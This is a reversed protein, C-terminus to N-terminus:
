YTRINGSFSVSTGDLFQASISIMSNNSLPIPKPKANPAAGAKIFVNGTASPDRTYTATSVKYNEVSAPPTPKSILVHMKRNKSPVYRPSIAEVELTMGAKAMPNVTYKPSTISIRGRKRGAGEYRVNPNGPVKNGDVNFICNALDVRKPLVKQNMILYIILAILLAILIPILIRLWRPLTRVEVKETAEDSVERGIENKGTASFTIKYKADKPTSNPDIQVRFASEDPLPEVLLNLGDAEAKFTVDKMQEATLPAGGITVDVIIPKGDKLQSIVYYNQEVDPSLELKGSSDTLEFTSQAEARDTNLGHENTYVASVSLTYVGPDTQLASGNYTTHVYYGDSDRKLECRANGGTLAAEADIMDLQAGTLKAGEYFFDVRHIAGDTFKVLDYSSASASIRVDLATAPPPSVKFGGFPWGFDLGNRHIKYGGLYTVDFDCDFTDEPALEIEFQGAKDSTVTETKGNITYSLTYRTDGLLSSTTQKGTRDVIYYDITYKGPPIEGNPDVENGDADKFVAKLDVDPEYYAIVSTAKGTYSLDYTGPDMADYTLMVGQLTEDILFLDKVYDGAGKTGYKLADQALPKESGLKVNEIGEGQIFLILKSMSVDFTVSQSSIALTDRGFILNCMETLQSLVQASNKAHKAVYTYRGSVNRPIAANEGIGLFMTNVDDVCVNLIEELEDITDSISLEVNNMHFYAGDTLVILWKEDASESRLGQYAASITEIPTGWAGPTYIDRIVSANQQTVQLPRASSYGVGNVEIDHMPYITMKDSANMMTAFAEMAYTARCWAKSQEESGNYMSGSNDFVIAIARSVDDTKAAHVSVPLLAALSSVCLVATLFLCLLRKM